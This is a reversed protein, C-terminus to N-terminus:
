KGVGVVHKSRGNRLTRLYMKHRILVPEGYHYLNRRVERVKRAQRLYIQRAKLPSKWVDISM